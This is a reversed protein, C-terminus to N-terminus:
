VGAFWEYGQDEWYGGTRNPLFNVETLYKVLKYGLKVGAYLRLPAGHEPGLPRGNMGYALITQAHLASERDWSSYYQTDDEEDVDFSRFEVYRARPDAGVSQALDRVRVGHWSAVASWGEVCYHRVRIDTRPMRELDDRSLLAPKGVMGGVKLRWGAPELPMKPAVFYPPFKDLPTEAERPLEAALRDPRFLFRQVRENWREMRGLVGHQPRGTDCGLAGATIALAGGRLLRRRTIPDNM